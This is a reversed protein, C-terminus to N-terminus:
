NIVCFKNIIKSKDMYRNIKYYKKTKLPLFGFNINENNSM